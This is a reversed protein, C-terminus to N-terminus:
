KRREKSDGIWDKNREKERLIKREKMRENKKAKNREEERRDKRNKTKEGKSGWVKRRWREPVNAIAYENFNKLNARKKGVRTRDIRESKETKMAMRSIVAAFTARSRSM